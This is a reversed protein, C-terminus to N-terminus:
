KQAAAESARMVRLLNGGMIKRIDTDSYGMDMLGRVLVPYKSVDELGAPVMGSIGDFDSGLGVFDPGAIKAVHDIARLVAEAKVEPLLARYRKQIARKMEWRSPDNRHKALMDAIERDRRERNAVLVASAKPNLYAASFNIFVVGRKRALARVMDDSMNRPIDCIARLSSHSAIVPARSVELADAFTKDSVHSIDVMMGMRNMERVLDRGKPSLGHHVPRDTGSDAWSNNRFHTLTMYRVGLRYYDRLIAPSDAILHGGELGLLIAIKGARHIREIDDATRAFEVQDRNARVQEHVADIWELSRPVWAEPPFDQPQVYIGFFIAGVRGRRLRPIDAEYYGHEEALQYGEDVVYGPTDVHTDVILLDRMLRDFREETGQALAAGLLLLFGPLM